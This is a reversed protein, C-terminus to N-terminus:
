CTRMTRPQARLSFAPGPSVRGSHAAPSDGSPSATVARWWQGAGGRQADLSGLTLWDAGFAQIGALYAILVLLAAYVGSGIEAGTFPVFTPRARRAAKRELAYRALEESAVDVQDLPVLLVWEGDTELTEYLLGKAALVLAAEACGQRSGRVV